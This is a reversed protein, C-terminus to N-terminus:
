SFFYAAVSPFMKVWMILVSKHKRTGQRSFSSKVELDLALVTFVNNGSQAM